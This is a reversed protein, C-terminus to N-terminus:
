HHTISMVSAETRRGGPRRPCRTPPADPRRRQSAGAATSGDRHRTARWECPTGLAQRFRDDSRAGRAGPPGSTGLRSFAWRLVEQDVRTRGIRDLGIRVHATIPAWNRFNGHAAHRDAFAIDEPEAHEWVGHFLPIVQLVEDPTLRSFHQWIFIRSSLMPERRLVTHAGDGGVFVIALRTAPEDWLYRFYEFTEGNLWQAEDM